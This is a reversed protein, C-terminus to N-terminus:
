FLFTFIVIICKSFSCVNRFPCKSTALIVFIVLIVHITLDVINNHLYTTKFNHIAIKMGNKSHKKQQERGRCVKYKTRM